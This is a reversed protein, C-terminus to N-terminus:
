REKEMSFRLSFVAYSGILLEMEGGRKCIPDTEHSLELSLFYTVMILFLKQSKKFIQQSM